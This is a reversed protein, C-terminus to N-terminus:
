GGGSRALWGPFRGHFEELASHLDAYVLDSPPLRHEAAFGSAAQWVARALERDTADGVPEGMAEVAVRGDARRFVVQFSSDQGIWEWEGSPSGSLLPSLGDLLDVVALFVLMSQDPTCGASTVRGREGALTVDGRSLGTPPRAAGGDSLAFEVIFTM